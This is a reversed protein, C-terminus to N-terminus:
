DHTTEEDRPSCTWTTSTYVRVNFMRDCSECDIETLGEDYFYGGDHDQVHGCYPCQPADTCYIDEGM